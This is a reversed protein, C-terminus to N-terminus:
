QRRWRAEEITIIAVAIVVLVLGVILVVHMGSQFM